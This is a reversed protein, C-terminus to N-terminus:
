IQPTVIIINYNHYFFFKFFYIFFVYDLRVKDSLKDLIVYEESRM